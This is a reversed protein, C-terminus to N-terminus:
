YVDGVLKSIFDNIIIDKLQHLNNNYNNNNIFIIYIIM